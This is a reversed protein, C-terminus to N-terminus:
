GGALVPTTHLGARPLTGMHPPSRNRVLCCLPGAGHAAQGAGRAVGGPHTDRGPGPRPLRGPAPGHAVLVSTAARCGAHQPLSVHTCAEHLGACTHVWPPACSSLHLVFLSNNYPCWLCNRGLVQHHQGVAAVLPLARCCVRTPGRTRLLRVQWKAFDARARIGRWLAQILSAATRYMNFDAKCVFMRWASQVLAASFDRIQCLPVPTPTSLVSHSCALARRSPSPPPGLAQLQEVPVPKPATCCTDHYRLAGRSGPAGGVWPVAGAAQHGTGAHPVPCGPHDTSIRACM